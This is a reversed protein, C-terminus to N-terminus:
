RGSLPQCISQYFPTSLCSLFISLSFPWVTWCLSSVFAKSLKDLMTVILPLSIMCFEDFTTVVLRWLRHTTMKVLGTPSNGNEKARDTLQRDTLQGTPSNDTLLNILCQWLWLCLSWVFSMMSPVVLRWLRHTTMKVLGTPLNDSDTLQWKGKGQRHTTLRYTTCNTFRRYTLKDLMTVVLPLSIMCFEDFMTVVLRWLRHTTMKVLGTPLNDSNTLQRDTLQGTPSYDTPLNNGWSLILILM